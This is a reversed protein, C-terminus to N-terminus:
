DSEEMLHATVGSDLARALATVGNIDSELAKERWERGETTRGAQDLLNSYSEQMRARLDGAPLSTLAGVNLMLLAADLQGMDARAGANVMLAEIATEPALEKTPISKLFEIAKEPRGLGRECDAM